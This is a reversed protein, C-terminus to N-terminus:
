SWRLPAGDRLIKRTEPTYDDRDSQHNAGSHIIMPALLSFPSRGGKRARILARAAPREQRSALPRVTISGFHPAFATILDPLRDAAQIMTVWGRPKLRRRAIEAWLALPTEERLAAERGKDAAATGAGAIYYPPNAFVHDFGTQRLDVPLDAIDATIIDILNEANRRALDAYNAQREVGTIQLDAVRAALCLSAVGVGCGLELVKDGAKAGVSAALLVPDTAARYGHKPQWALVRGGLFADRTLQDDTFGM